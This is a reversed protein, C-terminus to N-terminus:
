ISKEIQLGVYDLDNELIIEDVKRAHLDSNKCNVVSSALSYKAILFCGNSTPQKM